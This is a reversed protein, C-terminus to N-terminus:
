GNRFFPIIALNKSIPLAFDYECYCIIETELHQENWIRRPHWYFHCPFIRACFLGSSVNLGNNGFIKAPVIM